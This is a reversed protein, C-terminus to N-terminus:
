RPVAFERYVQPLLGGQRWAALEERTDIRLDVAVTQAGGGARRIRLALTARPALGDVGCLDFLESGDLALEALRVARFTLPLVGMGGLTELVDV